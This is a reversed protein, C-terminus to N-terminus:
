PHDLSDIPPQAFFTLRTHETLDDHIRGCGLMRIRFFGANNCSISRPEKPCDCRVTPALSGDSRARIRVHGTTRLVSNALLLTRVRLSM